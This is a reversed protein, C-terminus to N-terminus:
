TEGRQIDLTEYSIQMEEIAFLGERANLSPAKLKVPICGTLVLKAQETVGDPALIVVVGSVDLWREDRRLVGKFWDWLDFTDTMGRRLTLQGYSAPGLLHIPQNNNGGERITKPQMNMELGDCESFAASCLPTSDDAATFEISFNFSGFPRKVTERAPDAM